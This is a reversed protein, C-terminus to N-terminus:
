WICNLLHIHPQGIDPYEHRILNFSDEFEKVQSQYWATDMEWDSLDINEGPETVIIEFGFFALSDDSYADIYWIEFDIKESLESLHQKQEQTLLYGYSISTRYDISM